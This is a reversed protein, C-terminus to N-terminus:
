AGILNGANFFLFKVKTIILPKPLLGINNILLKFGFDLFNDRAIKFAYIFLHFISSYKLNLFCFNSKSFKLTLDRFLILFKSKIKDIVIPKKANNESLFRFVFSLIM